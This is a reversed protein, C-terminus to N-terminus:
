TIKKILKNPVYATSLYQPKNETLIQINRKTIKVLCAVDYLSFAEDSGVNITLFKESLLIKLLWIVLDSTYM